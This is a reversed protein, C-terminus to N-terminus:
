DPRLAKLAASALPGRAQRHRRPDPRHLWHRLFDRSPGILIAILLDTPLAEIDGAELYPALWAELHGVLRREEARLATGQEDSFGVESAQFLFLGWRPNEAFWDLYTCVANRIGSSPSRSREVARILRENLAVYGDFLLAFAVGDKGKFHHYM